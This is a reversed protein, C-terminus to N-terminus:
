CPLIAASASAAVYAGSEVYAEANGRRGNRRANALLRRTRTSFADWDSGWLVQAIGVAGRFAAELEQVIKGNGRVATWRENCNHSSVSQGSERSALTIAGFNRIM